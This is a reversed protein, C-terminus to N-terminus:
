EAGVVDSMSKNYARVLEQQERQPVKFFELARVIEAGVEKFEAETLKFRPHAESLPKGTYQFPGGTMSAIWITRMVKLGPLRTPSEDRNWAVLAPNQNLKPNKIIEDSFRDVVAAIAFIGGLREYLSQQGAKQKSTRTQGPTVANQAVQVQAADSTRPAAAVAPPITFFAATAFIAFKRMM